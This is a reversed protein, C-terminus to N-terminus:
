IEICEGIRFVSWRFSEIFISFSGVTFHSLWPFLRANSECFKIKRAAFTLVGLVRNCTIAILKAGLAVEGWQTFIIKNVFLACSLFSGFFSSQRVRHFRHHLHLSSRCMQHWTMFSNPASQTFEFARLEFRILRISRFIYIWIFTSISNSNRWNFTIRTYWYIACTDYWDFVITIALLRMRSWGSQTGDNWYEMEAKKRLTRKKLFQWLLCRNSIVKSPLLFLAADILDFWVIVIDIVLLLM